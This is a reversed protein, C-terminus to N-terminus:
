FKKKDSCFKNSWNKTPFSKKDSFFIQRFFNTTPFKQQRFNKNDFFITKIGGNFDLVFNKNLKLKMKKKKSIKYGNQTYIFINKKDFVESKSDNLLFATKSNIALM